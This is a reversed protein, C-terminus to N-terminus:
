LIKYAGKSKLHASVDELIMMAITHLTEPTADPPSHQRLSYVSDQSVTTFRKSGYETEGTKGIFAEETFM